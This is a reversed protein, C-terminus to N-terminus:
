RCSRWWLVDSVWKRVPDEMFAIDQTVHQLKYSVYSSNPVFNNYVEWVSVRAGMLTFLSLENLPMNPVESPIFTLDGRSITQKTLLASFNQTLESMGVFASWFKAKVRAFAPRVLPAMRVLSDLSLKTKSNPVLLRSVVPQLDGWGASTNSDFSLDFRSRPRKVREFSIKDLEKTRM